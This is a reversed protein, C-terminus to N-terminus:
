CISKPNKYAGANEEVSADLCAFDKEILVHVFHDQGTEVKAEIGVLDSNFWENCLHVPVKVVVHNLEYTMAIKVENIRELQFTLKSEPTIGFPLATTALGNKQFSQVEPQRLRFRISNDAIRIKMFLKWPNILYFPHRQHYLNKRKSFVAHRCRPRNM